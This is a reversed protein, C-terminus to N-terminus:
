QRTHSVRNEPRRARILGCSQYAVRMFITGRFEDERVTINLLGARFAHAM